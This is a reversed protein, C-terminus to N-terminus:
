EDELQRELEDVASNFFERLCSTSCFSLHFQGDSAKDVIDILLDKERFDGEGDDHAGHWALTLFGSIKDDDSAVFHNEGKKELAGGMLIAMSHPEWVKKEGCIPCLPRLPYM